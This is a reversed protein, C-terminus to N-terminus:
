DEYSEPYSSHAIGTFLSTQENPAPITVSLYEAAWRAINEIYEGMEEKNLTKTSRIFELAVGDKSPLNVKLFLNKCVIHADEVTKIEDYGADQLGDLVFQYVIGWLYRNQPNSRKKFADAKVQYRGDPLGKFFDRVTRKNLIEGNKITVIIM